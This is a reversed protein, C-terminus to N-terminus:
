RRRIASWGPQLSSRIVCSRTPFFLCPVTLRPDRFVGGAAARGVDPRVEGEVSTHSGFSLGTFTSGDELYLKALATPPGADDGSQTAFAKSGGRWSAAAPTGRALRPVGRTLYRLM